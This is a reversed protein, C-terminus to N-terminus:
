RAIRFVLRTAELSQPIKYYFTKDSISVPDMLFECQALALLFPCDSARFVVILHKLVYLNNM